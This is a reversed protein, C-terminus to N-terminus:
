GDRLPRDRQAAPALRDSDDMNPRRPLDLGDHRGTPPDTGVAVYGYRYTAVTLAFGNGVAIAGAQWTNGDTSYMIQSGGAKDSSAVFGGPGAAISSFEPPADDQFQAQQWKGSQTMHWIMGNDGSSNTVKGVAIIGGQGDPIAQLVVPRGTVGSATLGAPAPRRPVM